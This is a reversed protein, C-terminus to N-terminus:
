FGVFLVCGSEAIKNAQEEELDKVNIVLHEDELTSSIDYSKLVELTRAVRALILHREHPILPRNVYEIGLYVGSWNVYWPNGGGNGLCADAKSAWPRDNVLGFLLAVWATCQIDWRFRSVTLFAMPFQIDQLLPLETGYAAAVAADFTRLFHFGVLNSIPFCLAVLARQIM